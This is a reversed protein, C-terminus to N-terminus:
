TEENIISELNKIAETLKYYKKKYMELETKLTHIQSIFDLQHEITNSLCPPMVNLSMKYLPSKVLRYPLYQPTWITVNGQTNRLARKM